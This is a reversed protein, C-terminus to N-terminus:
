QDKKKKKKPTGMIFNYNYTDESTNIYKHKYSSM